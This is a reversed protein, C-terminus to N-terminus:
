QVHTLSFCHDQVYGTVMVESSCQSKILVLFLNEGDCQLTYRQDSVYWLLDVGVGYRASKLPIGRIPCIPTPM